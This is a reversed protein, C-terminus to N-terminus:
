CGSLSFLHWFEVCHIIFDDYFMIIPLAFRRQQNDAAGERRNPQGPFDSNDEVAMIAITIARM